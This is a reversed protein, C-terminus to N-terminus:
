KGRFYACSSQFAARCFQVLRAVKSYEGGFVPIQKASIEARSLNPFRLPLPGPLDASRAQTAGLTQGAGDDVAAAEEVAIEGSLRRQLHGAIADELEDVFQAM